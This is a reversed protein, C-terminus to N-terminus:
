KERIAYSKNTLTIGGVKECRALIDTLCTQFCLVERLDATKRSANKESM